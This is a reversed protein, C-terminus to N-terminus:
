EISSHGFGTGIANHDVVLLQAALFHLLHCLERGLAPAQKLHASEGSCGDIVRNVGSDQHPKLRM